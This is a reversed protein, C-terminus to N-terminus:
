VMITVMAIIVVMAIGGMSRAASRSMAWSCPLPFGCGARSCHILTTKKRPQLPQQQRHVFARHPPHRRPQRTQHRARLPHRDGDQFQVLGHASTGSAAGSCIARCVESSSVFILSLFRAFGAHRVPSAASAPRLSIPPAWDRAWAGAFQLGIGDGPFDFRAGSFRRWFPQRRRRVLDPFLADSPAPGGPHRRGIHHLVFRALAIVQHEDAHVSLPSPRRRRGPISRTPPPSRRGRPARTLRSSPTGCNDIGAAPQQHRDIAGGCDRRAASIAKATARPVPAM